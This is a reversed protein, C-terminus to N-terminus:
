DLLRTIVVSLHLVIEVLYDWAIVRHMPSFFQQDWCHSFPTVLFLRWLWSVQVFSYKTALLWFLHRWGHSYPLPLRLHTVLSTSKSNVFNQCSSTISLTFEHQSFVAKSSASARPVPHHQLKVLGAPHHNTKKAARYFEDLSLQVPEEGCCRCCAENLYMRTVEQKAESCTKQKCCARQQQKYKRHIIMRKTRTDFREIHVSFVFGPLSIIQATSTPFTVM